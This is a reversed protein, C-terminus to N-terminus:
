KTKQMFVKYTPLIISFLLGCINVIILALVLLNQINESLPVFYGIAFLLVNLFLVIYGIMGFYYFYVSTKPYKSIVKPVFSLSKSTFIYRLLLVFFAVLLLGSFWELMNCMASILGIHNQSLYKEVSQLLTSVLYIIDDIVFYIGGFVYIEKSIDKM